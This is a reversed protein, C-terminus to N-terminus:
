LLLPPLCMPAMSKCNHWHPSNDRDRSCRPYPQWTRTLHPQFQLSGVRAPPRTMGYMMGHTYTESSAYLALSMCHPALLRTCQMMWAEALLSHLDLSYLLWMHSVPLHMYSAYSHCGSYMAPPQKGVMRSALCRITQARVCHGWMVVYMCTDGGGSGAAM